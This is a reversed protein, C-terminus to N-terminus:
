QAIVQFVSPLSLVFFQCVLLLRGSNCAAQATVWMLGANPDDSTFRVAWKDGVRNKQSNESIRYFRQFVALFAMKVRQSNLIQTM